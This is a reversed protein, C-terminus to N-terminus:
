DPENNAVILVSASLFSFLAAGGIRDAIESWGFVLFLASLGLCTLGAILPWVPPVNTLISGCLIVSFLAAGATGGTPNSIFLLIGAFILLLCITSRLLGLRWRAIDNRLSQSMLTLALIAALPVTLRDFMWTTPDIALIIGAATILASEVPIVRLVSMASVWLAVAAIAALEQTAMTAISLFGLVSLGGAVVTRTPDLRIELV